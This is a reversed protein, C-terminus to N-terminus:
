ASKLKATAKQFGRIRSREQLKAKRKRDARARDGNRQSM